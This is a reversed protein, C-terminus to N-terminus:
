ASNVGGVAYLVGDYISTALAYRATPMNPLAIWHQSELSCM